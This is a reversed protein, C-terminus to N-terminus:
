REDERKIKWKAPKGKAVDGLNQLEASLPERSKGIRRHLAVLLDKAEKQFDSESNSAEKKLDEFMAIRSPYERLSIPLDGYDVTSGENIGDTAEDGSLQATGTSTSGGETQVKGFAKRRSRESRERGIERALELKLKNQQEKFENVYQAPEVDEGTIESLQEALAEADSSTVKKKDRDININLDIVKKPVQGYEENEDESM